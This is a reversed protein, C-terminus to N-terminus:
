SAVGRNRLEVPHTCFPAVAGVIDGQQTVSAQRIRIRIRVAREIVGVDHTVISYLIVLSEPLAEVHQVIGPRSKGDGVSDEGAHCLVTEPVVAQYQGRSFPGVEEDRM